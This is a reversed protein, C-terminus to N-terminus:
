SKQEEPTDIDGGSSFDTTPEDFAIDFTYNEADETVIEEKNIEQAGSLIRQEEMQNERIAALRAVETATECEADKTLDRTQIVRSSVYICLALTLASEFISDSLEYGQAFYLILSPISSFATLLAAGLGFAVYPRWLARKLNIRTEYLFFIASFLYAMQDVLKDPSNTPHTARNFYLFSAYTALYLVVCLSFSARYIDDSREIFVSLFFSVVSLIALLATILALAFTLRDYEGSVLSAIKDASVFLLCVSVMGAPIYSAWNSSHSVLKGSKDGLFLYSLFAVVAITAICCGVTIAVPDDYHMTVRNFASFAAVTRLTSATLGLVLLAILYLDITKLKKM